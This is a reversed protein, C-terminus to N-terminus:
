QPLPSSGQAVFRAVAAAAAQAGRQAHRFALPAAPAPHVDGPQHFSQHAAPRVASAAASRVVVKSLPLDPSLPLSFYICRTSRHARVRAFRARTVM